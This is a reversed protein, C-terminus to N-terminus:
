TGKDDAPARKPLAELVARLRERIPETLETKTRAPLTRIADDVICGIETIAKQCAKVHDGTGTLDKTAKESIEIREHMSRNMDKLYRIEALVNYLNVEINYLHRTNQLSSIAYLAAWALAAVLPLFGLRVMQADASLLGNLAQQFSIFIWFFCVIQSQTGDLSTPTRWWFYFNVAAWVLPLLFFFVVYYPVIYNIILGLVGLVLAAAAAANRLPHNDRRWFSLQVVESPKPESSV